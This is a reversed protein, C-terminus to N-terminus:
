LWWISIAFYDQSTCHHLLLQNCFITFFPIVKFHKTNCVTHSHNEGYLLSDMSLSFYISSNITVHFFVIGPVGLSWSADLKAYFLCKGDPSLFFPANAVSKLSFTCFQIFNMLCAGTRPFLPPVYSRLGIFGGGILADAAQLVYNSKFWM